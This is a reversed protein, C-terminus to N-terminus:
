DVHGWNTAVPPEGKLLWGAVHAQNGGGGNAHVKFGYHTGAVVSEGGYLDTLGLAPLVLPGGISIGPQVLRYMTALSYPDILSVDWGSVTSGAGSFERVVLTYGPQPDIVVGDSTVDGSFFTVTYLPPLAVM